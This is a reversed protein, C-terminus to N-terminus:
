CKLCPLDPLTKHPLVLSPNKIRLGLNVSADKVLIRVTNLLDIFLFEKVIGM